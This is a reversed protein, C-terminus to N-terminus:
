VENIKKDIFAEVELLGSVRNRIPLARLVAERYPLRCCDSMRADLISLVGADTSTRILRGVGQRLKTLMEPLLIEMPDVVQSIKYDIIPDFPPFPLQVIILSSLASGPIHVGEWYDGTALLVGQSGAFQDLKQQSIFGEGLLVDYPLERRILLTYVDKMDKEATFLILTRGNSLAILEAIRDAIAILYVERNSEDDPRPLDNPIYLLANHEYNFTAPQLDSLESHDEPFGVSEAYYQYMQQKSGQAKCLTESTLVVPISKSFLLKELENNINKPATCISFDCPDASNKELWVLYSSNAYQWLRRIFQPLELTEKSLLPKCAKIVKELEKAWENYNVIQKNPLWVRRTEQHTNLSTHLSQIQHAAGSFFQSRYEGVKRLNEIQEARTPSKPIARQLAREMAKLGQITWKTTFASRAQEELHHAEDIIYLITNDKNFGQEQSPDQLLQRIFFEQNIIIIRADGDINIVPGKELIVDPTLIGTLIKAQQADGVLQESLAISATAIVVSKNFKKVAFLAPILYALSKGVGTGAEVMIHHNKSIAEAIDISMMAQGQRDQLGFQEPDDFFNITPILVAQEIMKRRLGAKEHQSDGYIHRM